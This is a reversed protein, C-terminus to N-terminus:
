DTRGASCSSIFLLSEDSSLHADTSNVHSRAVTHVGAGESNCRCFPPRARFETIPGPRSAWMTHSHAIHRKHDGHGMSSQKINMDSTTLKNPQLKTVIWHEHKVRLSPDSSLRM